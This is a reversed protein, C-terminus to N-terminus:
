RNTSIPPNLLPTINLNFGFQCCHSDTRIRRQKNKSAWNTLWLCSNLKMKTSGESWVAEINSSLFFINTQKDRFTLNGAGVPLRQYNLILSSYFHVLVLTGNSTRSPNQFIKAGLEGFDIAKVAERYPVFYSARKNRRLCFYGMKSNYADLVM